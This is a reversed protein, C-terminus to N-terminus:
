SAPVVAPPTDWRVQIPVGPKLGYREALWHRVFQTVRVEAEARVWPTLQRARQELRPTMEGQLEAAVSARYPLWSGELTLTELKSINAAPANHRISPPYVMLTGDQWAFHWPANLDLYYTYQVPVRAVLVVQPLPLGLWNRDSRAEFWSLEKLEAFQLYTSGQLTAAETGFSVQLHNGRLEKMLAAPLAALQGALAWATACLLAVCLVLALPWAWGSLRRPPPAPSPPLPATM